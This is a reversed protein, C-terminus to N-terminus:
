VLGVQGHICLNYYLQLLLSPEEKGALFVNSDVVKPAEHLNWKGKSTGKRVIIKLKYSHSVSSVQIKLSKELSKCFGSEPYFSSPFEYVVLAAVLLVLSYTILCFCFFLFFLEELMTTVQAAELAGLCGQRMGLQGETWGEKGQIRM